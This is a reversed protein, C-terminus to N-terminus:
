KQEKLVVFTKEPSEAKVRGYLRCADFHSLGPKTPDTIERLGDPQVEYVRNLPLM